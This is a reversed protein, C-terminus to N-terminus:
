IAVDVPGAKTAAVPAPSVLPTAIDFSVGSAGRDAYAPTAGPGKYAFDVQRGGIEAEANGVTTGTEDHHAGPIDVDIGIEAKGVHVDPRDSGRRFGVQVDELKLSLRGAEFHAHTAHRDAALHERAAEAVRRAMAEADAQPVGVSRLFGVVARAAHGIARAVPEWRALRHAADSGPESAAAAASPSIEVAPGPGEADGKDQPQRDPLGTSGPPVVAAVLEALHRSSIGASGGPETLTAVPLLM